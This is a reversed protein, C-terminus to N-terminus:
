GAEKDGAGNSDIWNTTRKSVHPIEAGAANSREEFEVIGVRWAMCEPHRGDYWQDRVIKM